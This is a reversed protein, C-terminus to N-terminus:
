VETTASKRIERTCLNCFPTPTGRKMWLRWNVENHTLVRERDQETISGRHVGQYFATM